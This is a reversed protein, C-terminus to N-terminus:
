LALIKDFRTEGMQKSILDVCRFEIKMGGPIPADPVPYPMDGDKLANKIELAEYLAVITKRYGATQRLQSMVGRIHGALVATTTGLLTLSQLPITKPSEFSRLAFM